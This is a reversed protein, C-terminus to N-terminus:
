NGVVQSVLVFQRTNVLRSIMLLQPTADPDVHTGVYFRLKLLTFLLGPPSPPNCASGTGQRPEVPLTIFLKNGSRAEAIGAANKQRDPPRLKLQWWRLWNQLWLGTCVLFGFFFAEGDDIALDSARFGGFRFTFM